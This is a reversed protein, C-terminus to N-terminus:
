VLKQPRPLTRMQAVATVCIVGALAFALNGVNDIVLSNMAVRSPPLDAILQLQTASAMLDIAHRQFMPQFREGEYICIVNADRDGCALMQGDPSSAFRGISYPLEVRKLLSGQRDVKVLLHDCAVVIAQGGGMVALRSRVDPKSSLGIDFQHSSKGPEYLCLQGTADLLALLGSARDLSVAAISEIELKSEDTGTVLYAEDGSYYFRRQGNRTTYITWSDSALVPPYAGNPAVLQPMLAQWQGHHRVDSDIIKLDQEGMAAGSELDFYTVRDPQSWAALLSSKPAKLIDLRHLARNSLHVRWPM